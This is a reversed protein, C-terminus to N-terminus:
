EFFFEPYSNTKKKFPDGIDQSSYLLFADQQIGLLTSVRVASYVFWEPEYPLFATKWETRRIYSVVFQRNDADRKIVYQESPFKRAEPNPMLSFCVQGRLMRGNSGTYTAGAYDRPCWPIREIGNRLYVDQIKQIYEEDQETVRVFPSVKMMAWLTSISPNLLVIKGFKATLWVGLKEEYAYTQQIVSKVGEPHDEKKLWNINPLHTNDVWADVWNLV